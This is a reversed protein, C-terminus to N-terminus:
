QEKKEATGKKQDEALKALERADSRKAYEQGAQSNM